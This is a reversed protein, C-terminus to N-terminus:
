NHPQKRPLMALRYKHTGTTWQEPKGVTVHWAEEKSLNNKFLIVEAIGVSFFQIL